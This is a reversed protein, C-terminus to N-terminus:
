FDQIIQVGKFYSDGVTSTNVFLKASITGLGIGVQGTSDIRMSESFTASTGATGSAAQYFHFGDSDMQFRNATDTTQYVNNTGNYYQNYSLGGNNSASWLSIKNGIQINDFSTDWSFPTVGIGVRGSSDFRAIATTGKYIRFNGANNADISWEQTGDVSEWTLGGDITDVSQKIHLKSSPSTTGIGVNGAFTTTSTSPTGMGSVSIVSTGANNNLGWDNNADAWLRRWYKLSKSTGSQIVDGAFTANGSNTFQLATTTTTENRIAFGDNSVGSTGSMISWANGGSGTNNIRIRSHSQDGSNILLGYAVSGDTTVNLYGSSLIVDGAFTSDGGVDLDGTVNLDTFSFSGFTAAGTVDLDGTVTLDDDITTSKDINFVTDTFYAVEAELIGISVKAQSFITLTNTDHDHSIFNAQDAATTGDAFRIYATDTTGSVLTMGSDDPVDIVLQEASYDSPSATGIGVNQSDDIFIGNGATFGGTTLILGDNTGDYGITAKVSGSEQLRITTNANATTTNMDVIVNSSDEIDLKVDPSDTGIGVNRDVNLYMINGNGNAFAIEGGVSNAKITHLAGVSSGSATSSTFRLSRANSANDGGVRLYEGESGKNIELNSSPSTTGIGVNGSSDIRMTETGGTTFGLTDVAPFYMGTNTDDSNSFTPNTASSVASRIRAGSSGTGDLVNTSQQFPNTAGFTINGAFTANQSNDLELAEINNTGFRLSFNDEQWIGSNTGTRLYIYKDAGTLEIDGNTSINGTVSVGTSTTEFKLSNDYYLKVGADTIFRGMYESAGKNIQVETGDSQISLVGTGTENIYSNSGDHYIQLDQADGFSVNQDDAM